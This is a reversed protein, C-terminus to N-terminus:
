KIQCNIQFFGQSWWNKYINTTWDAMDIQRFFLGILIFAAFIVILGLIVSLIIGKAQSITKFGGPLIEFVAGVYLIGAIVLMLVAIPFLINILLFDILRDIMVFLHCLQCPKSEDIDTTSTVDCSRGCPVLGGKCTPP